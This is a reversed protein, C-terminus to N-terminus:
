ATTKVKAAAHEPMPEYRAFSRTFSAAGHALSRLDIAYRTLEVQPVEAKVVTREHGAAETGLVRGRRGSLDGMVAGVYDDPVMVAIEDIPELLIVKTAAAAERLALSGAMQFAFDSSDVSHAKGDFLTVRIDVMPYGAHVGKEMQARVGKEVSPIFNRPVAGGVVKDVFEFGSGEPLPEVEIDCVAYQGHGGSQKIHRGHGKAKGALTERLPVRLEITDVTVGYRNALADLVVGSHAEGMCWLVFQHTEQNQEIRLTPDEAALRALGVSLKDEDTKAHAQIAIPLLPEPMTWPRLVLPESKDSLTDGTEARSLKGIACIDGAVVEPAPRQQKGLPFSLVGIREDEDHDPHSTGHGNTEGFFSSFHGSVHVTADPKITGSFVRVLSVRGVYPDSTTKVVEALLPANVDCALTAHTAGQPTFVEPLPHEMPSPFGRTAVELLELTGVGTSSCVPIVPFFSGRAVAKELDEILVSEDIAEGGLYREMLSEDESEEIIGEILTGRAEEIRDADAEDPARTTRKGDAYEYRTQSLLGILGSGTPLYLPLVKDGFADQAATLAEPYNARAHDLKTIVVARPMGVQSCEQWLSKTPEDVGENAAIVFLACDAARLGARLEGVFDAYGPTDVLNVKIGEYSLSAVAVGVSRQQRIEAEDFDCVTTGDVVSGPRNLVGAAVLLAEVLTTKGGGSPGVLVV